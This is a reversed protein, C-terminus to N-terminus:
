RSEEGAAVGDIEVVRYLGFLFENAAEDHVPGEIAEVIEAVGTAAPDYTVDLRARSAYAVLRLVGPAGDLQKAAREATDVCRVGKVVLTTTRTAADPAAAAYARTVSPAMLVRAGGVGLAAFLVVLVPVLWAPARM